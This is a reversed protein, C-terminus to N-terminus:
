MIIVDSSVMVFVIDFEFIDFNVAAVINCIFNSFPLHRPWLKHFCIFIIKGM